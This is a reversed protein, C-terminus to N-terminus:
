ANECKGTGFIFKIISFDKRHDNYQKNAYMLMGVFLVGLTIYELVNRANEYSEIKNEYSSLEFGSPLDIHDVHDQGNFRDIVSEYYKIQHDILYITLLLIFGVILMRYDNKLLLIFLAYVLATRVFVVSLPTGERATFSSTFLLLIIFLSNMGLPTKLFRQVSCNMLGKGVFGAGLGIFLLFLVDPLKNLELDSTKM